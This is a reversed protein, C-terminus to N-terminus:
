IWRGLGTRCGEDENEGLGENVGGSFGVVSGGVEVEEERVVGLGRGLDSLAVM